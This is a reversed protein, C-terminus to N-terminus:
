DRPSPSTYLLCTYSFAAVDPFDYGQPVAWRTNAAAFGKFFGHRLFSTAAKSVENMWRLYHGYHHGYMERERKFYERPYTALPMWSYPLIGRAAAPSMIVYDRHGNIETTVNPPPMPILDDYDKVEKNNFDEWLTQVVEDDLDTGSRTLENNSLMVGKARPNPKLRVREM